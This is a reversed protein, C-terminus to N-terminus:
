NRRFLWAFFGRRRSPMQTSNCDSQSSGSLTRELRMLWISANSQTDLDVLLVRKGMQAL